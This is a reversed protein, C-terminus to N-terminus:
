VRHQCYTGEATSKGELKLPWSFAAEINYIIKPTEKIETMLMEIPFKVHRANFSKTAWPNPLPVMLVGLPMVENLNNVYIDYM